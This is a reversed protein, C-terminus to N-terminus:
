DGRHDGYKQLSVSFGVEQGVSRRPPISFLKQGSSGKASYEQRGLGLCNRVTKTAQNLESKNPNAIGVAICIDTATMLETPEQEWDFYTKVREEVSNVEELQENHRNLIKLEAPSCFPEIQKSQLYVDAWFQQMDIEHNPNLSVVDLGIFRRNGTDDKLFGRDNTTAIFATRRPTKRDRRAYPPRVRDTDSTIFAKLKDM